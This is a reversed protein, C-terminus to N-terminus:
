IAESLVDLPNMEEEKVKEQAITEERKASVSLVIGIAM